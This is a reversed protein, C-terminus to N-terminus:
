YFSAKGDTRFTKWLDLALLWLELNALAEQLILALVHLLFWWEDILFLTVICFVYFYQVFLSSAMDIESM